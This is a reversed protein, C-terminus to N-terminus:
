NDNEDICRDLLREHINIHQDYLGKYKNVNQNRLTALVVVKGINNLQQIVPVYDTDGSILVAVDYANTYAKSIMNVAINVDTGKEVTTFTTQNHIDIEVEKNTRRAVQSGEIVELYPANKIGKLWNYFSAYNPLDLLKEEPKSAFIYTKVLTANPISIKKVIESSLKLYDLRPADQGWGSYLNQLNIRFNHLDIFVMVKMQNGKKYFFPVAFLGKLRLSIIGM